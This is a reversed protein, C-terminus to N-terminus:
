CPEDGFPSHGYRRLDVKTLKQLEQDEISGCHLGLFVFYIFRLALWRRRGRLSYGSGTLLAGNRPPSAVMGCVWGQTFSLACTKHFLRILLSDMTQESIIISSLNVSQLACYLLIQMVIHVKDGMYLHAVTSYEVRAQFSENGHITSM